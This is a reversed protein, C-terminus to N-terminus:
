QPSRFSMGEERRNPCGGGGDKAHQSGRVKRSKKEQHHEGFRLTTGKRWTLAAAPGVRRNAATALVCTRHHESSSPGNGAARCRAQIGSAHKRRSAFGRPRRESTISPRLIGPCTLTTPMASRSVIVTRARSLFYDWIRKASMSAGSFPNANSSRAHSLMKGKANARRNSASRWM